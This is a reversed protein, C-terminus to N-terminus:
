LQDSEITIGVVGPGLALTGFQQREDYWSAPGDGSAVLQRFVAYSIRSLSQLESTHEESRGCSVSAALARCDGEKLLYLPLGRPCSPPRQWGFDRRMVQRLTDIKEPDRALAYLGPALHNVRHVFLGLHIRPRWPIADWPM